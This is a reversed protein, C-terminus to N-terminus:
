QQWGDPIECWRLVHSPKMERGDLWWTKKEHHIVQMTKILIMKKQEDNWAPKWIYALVDRPDDPSNREAEHWNGPLEKWRKVKNKIIRAM